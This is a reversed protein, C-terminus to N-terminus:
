VVVFLTDRETWCYVSVRSAARNGKRGAPAAGIRCGLSVGLRKIRTRDELGEGVSKGVVPRCSQDARLALELARGVCSYGAM